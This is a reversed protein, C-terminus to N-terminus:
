VQEGDVPNLTDTNASNPDVGVALSEEPAWRVGAKGGGAGSGGGAYSVPDQLGM